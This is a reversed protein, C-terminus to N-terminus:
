SACSSCRRPSRRSRPWARSAGHTVRCCSSRPGGPGREREQPAPAARLLVRGPKPRGPASPQKRQSSDWWSRARRSGGRCSTSGPRLVDGRSSSSSGMSVVLVGVVTRHRRHQSSAGGATGPPNRHTVHSSARPPRSSGCSWPLRAPSCACSVVDPRTWGACGRSPHARWSRAWCWAPGPHDWRGRGPQGEERPPPTACQLRPGGPPSRGAPGPHSGGARSRQSSSRGEDRAMAMTAQSLSHLVCRERRAQWSPSLVETRGPMEEPGPPCRVQPGKGLVDWLLRESSEGTYPHVIERRGEHLCIRRTAYVVVPPTSM